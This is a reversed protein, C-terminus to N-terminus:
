RILVMVGRKSITNGTYTTGRVMWVFGGPDQPKGNFMGDWGQGIQSTQYMLQGFRNYVMFYDISTVGVPVPRFVMNVTGGPTFANPVFIDPGTKFVKVKIAATAVCGATNVATVTYEITSVSLGLSAVPDSIFSNNLTAAPTWAFSLSLSDPSVAQLQLPENAVISTDRGASLLIQPLVQVHFTDLRPNPCGANLISLVYDTSNVPSATALLNTPLRTIKGDGANTLTSANSWSYSTGRTIQAALLAKSDFCILTDAPEIAALPFPVPNTTVTAPASEDLPCVGNKVLARYETNVAIGTVMIQPQTNVTSFDTWANPTTSSQWNLVSGTNGTIGLVPGIDQEACLIAADPTVQGGVSKQDVRVVAATSSDNKCVVGKAVLAKYYTKTTLDQVTYQDSVDPIVSWNTQDTSSLWNVVHGDYNKLHLVVTNDGTCVTSDGTADGGLPSPLTKVFLSDLLKACSNQERAVVYGDHTGSTIQVINSLTDSNLTWSDPVTWEYKANALAPISYMIATNYCVLSDGSIQLGACNNRIAVYAYAFHGGPTCNDAEFQISVDQGRYPGLDFTVERWGKTWVDQLFGGGSRPNPNVNPSSRPSPAFGNKVAAATDLVSGGTGANSSTGGFTPLYYSPSACLIVSDATTITASFLPQDESPHTGNELVMAYAYTITYPETKPGPPVHIKYRVGRIYGGPNETAPPRAYSVQTSGLKISYNYAYGNLTPITPFSGFEDSGNSTIVQIGAVPLTYENITTRTSNTTSDYRLDIATEGNGYKNNGTYAYWHGLTGLGFSINAPCTQLQSLAPSCCLILLGGLWCKMKITQLM